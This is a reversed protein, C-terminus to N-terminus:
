LVSIWQKCIEDVSHTARIKRSNNSLKIRLSSDTVIRIMADALAKVDNVPVLIGNEENKIMLRGGGVPCDTVVTPVGLAMAELMTNSIGEYDSSSIYAISDLMLENIKSSFPLIEIVNELNKTKILKQLYSKLEGEGYIELMIDPHKEHLIEFADIMLPYNKQKTLRGAAIIRNKSKYADYFEDSAIIVPNPIITGKKQIRKSFYRKMDETQFVNWDALEYIINRIIRMFQNGFNKSPDNRECIVVKNRLGLSSILSLVNNDSLFSIITYDLNDLFVKRMYRIMCYAKKIPNTDYKPVQIVEIKHNLNYNTTTKHATKLIKVKIGNEAMAGAINTLVREAGGGGLSSIVFMVKKNM